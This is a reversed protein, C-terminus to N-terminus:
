KPEELVIAQTVFRAAGGALVTQEQQFIESDSYPRATQITKTIGAPQLIGILARPVDWRVSLKYQVVSNPKGELLVRIVNPGKEPVPTLKLPLKSGDLSTFSWSMYRDFASHSPNYDITYEAPIGPEIFQPGRITKGIDAKFLPEFPPALERAISPMNVVIFTDSFIRSFNEGIKEGWFPSEDDLDWDGRYSYLLNARATGHPNSAKSVIFYMGEETITAVGAYIGDNAMMDPPVGDDRMYAGLIEGAANRIETIISVGAYNGGGRTVAATLTITGGNEAMNVTQGQVSDIHVYHSLVTNINALEGIVVNDYPTLGPYLALAHIGGQRAEGEWSLAYRSEETFGQPSSFAFPTVKGCQVSNDAQACSAFHVSMLALVLLSVRGRVSRKSASKCVFRAFTAIILLHALLGANCGGGGGSEGDITLDGSREYLDVYIPISEQRKTGDLASEFTVVVEHHGFIKPTLYAVVHSGSSNHVVEAAITGNGQVLEIEVSMPPATFFAEVELSQNAYYPPKSLGIDRLGGAAPASTVVVTHFFTEGDIGIDGSVDVIDADRRGLGLRFRYNGAQPLTIAEATTAFIGGEILMPVDRYLVNGAPDEVFLLKARQMKETAALSYFRPEGTYDRAPFFSRIEIDAAEASASFLFVFFFAALALHLTRALKM